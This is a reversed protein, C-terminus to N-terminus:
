AKHAFVLYATHWIGKTSPRVGEKRVLMDRVITEICYIDVFGLSELKSGFRSVQETHPLYGVVTGGQKLAKKANKLAKESSPMDLTVLDVESEKIKKFVDGQVLALNSLNLMQKNKEAIALFDERVDYSYVQKCIRALSVALWGSGTGADVCVSDKDVGSYAMIMGIDKPLIVQPGRKLKRYLRPYIYMM